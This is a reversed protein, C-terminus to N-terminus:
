SSGSESNKAEGETDMKNLEQCREAVALFVGSKHRDHFERGQGDALIRSGDANCLCMEILAIQQEILSADGVREFYSLAEGGDISRVYLGGPLEDVGLPEIQRTSVALLEEATITM